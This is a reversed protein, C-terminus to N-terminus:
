QINIKTILAGTGQLTIARNQVMNSMNGTISVSSSVNYTTTVNSGNTGTQNITITAIKGQNTFTVSNFTGSVSFNQNNGSTLQTVEAYIASNNYSRIKVIDGAQLASGSVQTGSRYIFAKDNVNVAQAQNGNVIVVVSNTASIVTGTFQAINPQTVSTGDARQLIEAHLVVGNYYHVKIVQGPQLVASTTQAGDSYISTNAHLQLSYSQGASTLTLLNNSVQGSVTGTMEGTTTVPSVSKTVEIVAATHNYAYTTLVDGVQLASLTTFAGNKYIITTSNLSVGQLGASTTLLLTNDSIPYTLTGIITSALNTPTGVTGVAQTVEVYSVGYNYSRTTVIDGVQLGAATTQAGNRFYLVNSNLPLSITQGNILLTITNGSIASTVMGTKVGIAQTPTTPNGGNPQSVEIYIISNDNSRIKLVDGTQLASPSVKAGNRYIFVDPHLTLNINQGNTRVTLINGNVPAVVTGTVLGEISGPLQNGARDLLAAIQARTVLQKPRFTNDEFGNVLGKDVAVKVYGVSGAPVASSDSFPLKANMNAEAEDQLKLAKVLLTTAWLRDAPQNPNVITDSETFLDNELAVAVYGVAWSPVSAADLFNLKTAKEADSEAQDRLGMLRVAATIAEIRTVTEQPKFTGDPYGDFIRRSVLSMIYNLAWEFEKGKIDKFDFKIANQPRKDFNQRANSNRDDNHDRGNQAFATTGTTMVLSLALTPILLKKMRLHKM